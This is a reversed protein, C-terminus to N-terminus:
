CWVSKRQGRLRGNGPVADRLCKSAGRAGVRGWGWGWGWGWGGERRVRTNHRTKAEDKQKASPAARYTKRRKFGCRERGGEGERANSM